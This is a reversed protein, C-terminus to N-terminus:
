KSQTIENLSKNFQVDILAVVAVPTNQLIMASYIIDTLIPMVTERKSSTPDLWLFPSTNLLDGNKWDLVIPISKKSSYFQIVGEYKRWYENKFEEQETFMEFPLNFVTLSKLPVRFQFLTSGFWARTQPFGPVTFELKKPPLVLPEFLEGDFEWNKSNARVPQNPNAVLEFPKEQQYLSKWDWKKTAALDWTLNNPYIAFLSSETKLENTFEYRTEVLQKNQISALNRVAYGFKFWIDVFLLESADSGFKVIFWEKGCTKNPVYLPDIIVLVTCPFTFQSNVLLLQRLVSTEPMSEKIMEVSMTEISTPADPEFIPANIASLADLDVWQGYPLYLRKTDLKTPASNQILKSNIVHKWWYINNVFLPEPTRLPVANQYIPWASNHHNKPAQMVSDVKPFEFPPEVNSISLIIHHPSKEYEVIEIEFEGNGTKSDFSKQVLQVSTVSTDSPKVKEYLKTPWCLTDSMWRLGNFDVLLAGKWLSVLWVNQTAYFSDGANMLSIPLRTEVIPPHNQIVWDYITSADFTEDTVFATSRDLTKKGEVLWQKEISYNPEVVMLRGNIWYIIPCEIDDQRVHWLSLAKLYKISGEKSNFLTEFVSTVEKENIFPWETKLVKSFKEVAWSPFANRWSLETEDLKPAEMTSYDVVRGIQKANEPLPHLYYPSPHVINSRNIANFLSWSWLTLGGSKLEVFSKDIIPITWTSHTTLWHNYELLACKVKRILVGNVWWEYRGDNKLIHDGIAQALSTIILPEEENIKEISLSTHVDLIPKNPIPPQSIVLHYNHFGITVQDNYVAVLESRNRRM